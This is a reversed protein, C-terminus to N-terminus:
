VIEATFYVPARNLAGFKAQKLTLFIHCHPASSILKTNAVYEGKGGVPAIIHGYLDLLLLFMKLNESWGHWLAM